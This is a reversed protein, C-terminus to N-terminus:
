HQKKTNFNRNKGFIGDQPIINEEKRILVYIGLPVLLDIFFVLLIMAWTDIHNRREWISSVTHAIKGLNRTKAEELKPFIEKNSGENIKTTADDLDTVLHQLTIIQPHNEVDHLDIRSDDAIIDKLLPTYMHNISDLKKTGVYLKEANEINDTSVSKLIYLEMATNMQKDLFDAIRKRDEESDGVKFSPNIPPVGVKTSINNFDNLIRKAVPGFGSQYNIEDLIQEKLQRLSNWNNKDIATKKNSFEQLITNLKIAEEKVLQRGLYSPYFFNLNFVIFFCACILYFILAIKRGSVAMFYSILLFLLIIAAIFISGYEWNFPQMEKLGLHTHWFGVAFAILSLLMAAIKIESPIKKEKSAM